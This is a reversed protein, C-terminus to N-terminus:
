ESHVQRQVPFPLRAEGVLTKVSLVTSLVSPEVTQTTSVAAPQQWRTLVSVDVRIVSSQYGWTCLLQIFKEASITQQALHLWLLEDCRRHAFEPQM